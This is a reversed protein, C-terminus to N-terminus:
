DTNVASVDALWTNNPWAEANAPTNAIAFLEFVAKIFSVAPM